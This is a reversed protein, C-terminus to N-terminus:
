GKFQGYDIGDEIDDVTPRSPTAQAEAVVSQPYRQELWALVDSRNMPTYHQISHARIRQERAYAERPLPVPPEGYILFAAQTEGHVQMKVAAQFRNLGVLDEVKFQPRLYPSLRLADDANTPFVVLTGVNGLIGQLTESPLQAFHQHAVIMSLGYKRAEAFLTELSGTVFNQVEDIYIYVRQRAIAPNMGVMQLMSILLAGVLNQERRPVEEPNVALSILVIKKEQVWRELPIRDPHCLSPYLHPNSYFPNIRNLIPGRVTRQQGASLHHYDDGLTQMTDHDHVQALVQQRYATDTFLLFLDLMTANPVHQLARIGARLYKDMRVGTTTHFQEIIDIVRGVAAYSQSGAFVNLPLPYDPQGLDLVVVDAEREPPISAQLIGKILMGHPDIVFVGHGKAIDQHLQHHLFTSKGGGSRGVVIEHTDRDLSPLRAAVPQGQYIGQGVVIGEPNRVITHSVPPQSKAWLVQTGGFAQHPVHWLSALEPITLYVWATDWWRQARDHKARQAYWGVNTTLHDETDTEVAFIRPYPHARLGNPPHQPDYIEFSGELQFNIAQRLEHAREFYPSDVDVGVFCEYWAQSQKHRVAQEYRHPRRWPDDNLLADAVVAGQYLMPKHQRNVLVTYTVEEDEQLFSLTQALPLLPDGTDKWDTVVPLPRNAAAATAYSLKARYFPYVRAPGTGYGVTTVAVQTAQLTSLATRRGSLDLVQWRIGVSRAVIQFAVTGLGLCAKIVYQAQHADWNREAESKFVYLPAGYFSPKSM